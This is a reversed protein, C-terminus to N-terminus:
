LVPFGKPNWRGGTIKAGTGSLDKIWKKKAIKYVIM